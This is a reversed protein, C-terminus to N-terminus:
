YGGHSTAGVGPLLFEVRPLLNPGSSSSPGEPESVTREGQYRHKDRERCSEAQEEVEKDGSINRGLARERRGEREEREPGTAPRM